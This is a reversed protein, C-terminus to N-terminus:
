LGTIYSGKVFDLLDDQSRMTKRLTFGTDACTNQVVRPDFDDCLALEFFIQHLLMCNGRPSKPGAEEREPSSYRLVAIGERLETTSKESVIFAWDERIETKVKEVVVLNKEVGNVILDRIFRGNLLFVQKSVFVSNETKECSKRKRLKIFMELMLLNEFLDAKSETHFALCDKKRLYKTVLYCVLNLQRLIEDSLKMFKAATVLGIPEGADNITGLKNPITESHHFAACALDYYNM